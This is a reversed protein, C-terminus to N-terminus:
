QTSALAKRLKTLAIEQVQRVRERGLGITRGIEALNEEDDGDLGFRRTIVLRERATLQGLARTLRARDEHKILVEAVEGLDGALDDTLEEAVADGRLAREYAAPALPACGRQVYDARVEAVTPQRGLEQAMREATRRIGINRGNTNSSLSRADAVADLMGARIWQRIYTTFAFGKAPDFYDIARVLGRDTKGAMGIVGAQILDDLLDLRNIRRALSRADRVVIRMNAAIVRQRAQEDGAKALAVLAHLEERPIPDPYAAEAASM